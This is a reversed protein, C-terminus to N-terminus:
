AMTWIALRIRVIKMGPLKENILLECAERSPAGVELEQLQGDGRQVTALWCRM